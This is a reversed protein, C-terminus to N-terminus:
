WMGLAWWLAIGLCILATTVIWAPKGRATRDEASLYHGCSPCRPTDEYIDAKCVPCPITTPDDAEDDLDADDDWDDDTDDTDDYVTM